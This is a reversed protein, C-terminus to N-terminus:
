RASPLTGTLSPRTSAIIWDIVRASRLSGSRRTRSFFRTARTADPLPRAGRSTDSSTFRKPCIRSM